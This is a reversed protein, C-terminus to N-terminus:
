RNASTYLGPSPSYRFASRGAATMSFALALVFLIALGVGSLLWYRGSSTQMRTM